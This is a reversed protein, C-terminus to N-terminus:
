NDKPEDKEVLIKIKYGNEPLPFIRIIGSKRKVSFYTPIGRRKERRMQTMEALPIQELILSNNLIMGKLTNIEIEKRQLERNLEDFQKRSPLSLDKGLLYKLM